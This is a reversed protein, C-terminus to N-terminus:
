GPLGQQPLTARGLAYLAALDIGGALLPLEM